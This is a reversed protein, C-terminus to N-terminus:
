PLTGASFDHSLVVEPVAVEEGVPAHDLPEQPLDHALQPHIEDVEVGALPDIRGEDVFVPRAM